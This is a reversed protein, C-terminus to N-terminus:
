NLLEGNLDSTTTLNNNKEAKKIIFYNMKCNWYSQLLVLFKTQFDKLTALDWLVRDVCM